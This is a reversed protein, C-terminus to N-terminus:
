GIGGSYPPVLRLAVPEATDANTLRLTFSGPELGATDVTLVNDRVAARRVVNEDSTILEAEVAGSGDLAFVIPEGIPVGNSLSGDTLEVGYQVEHNVFQIHAPDTWWEPLVEYTPFDGVRLDALMSVTLKYRTPKSGSVKLYGRAAEPPRIQVEKENSWQAIVARDENYLTVNVAVESTLGIWPLAHGQAAPADFVFYDRDMWRKKEWPVTDSNRFEEHLTLDLTGPGNGAISDLPTRRFRLRTATDFTDNPEFRDPKVPWPLPNVTLRYATSGTSTLRVTYTGPPVEADRRRYGPGTMKGLPAVTQGDADVIKLTMNALREYWIVEATVLSYEDFTITYDDVDGSEKAIGWGDGLPGYLGLSGFQYLPRPSPSDASDPLSYDVASLVAAYADLGKTVRGDGDWSSELLRKKIEDTDMTPAVARMMAITGAVLPASGSTGTRFSIDPNDGDPAVPLDTGPAWIDVVSGYNSFPAATLNDAGLAGVGIVRPDGAPYVTPQFTPGKVMHRGKNGASAVMLVGNDAAFQLTKDWETDPLLGFYHEMSFSMNVVDVGWAACLQLGLLRGDLFEGKFLVIPFAAQGGAGAAGAYNNILGAALSAVGSGHWRVVPHPDGIGQTPDDLNLGILPGRLDLGKAPGASATPGGSNIWFGTDMVALLVDHPTKAMRYSDLLQWAKVFKAAGDFVGSGIPSMGNLEKISSLPMECPSAMVNLGVLGDPYRNTLAVMTAAMESSVGAGEPVDSDNLAGSVPQDFAIKLTPAPLSIDRVRHTLERPPDPIEKPPAITGGFGRVLEDVVDSHESGVIVENEVFLVPESTNDAAHIAGIRKGMRLTWLHAAKSATQEASKSNAASSDM